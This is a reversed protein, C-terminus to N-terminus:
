HIIGKNDVRAGLLLTAHVNWTSKFDRNAVMPFLCFRDWLFFPGFLCLCQIKKKFLLLPCAVVLDGVPFLHSFFHVSKCPLFIISINSVTKSVKTIKINQVPAASPARIPKM